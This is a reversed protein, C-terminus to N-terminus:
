KVERIEEPSVDTTETERALYEQEEDTSDVEYLAKESKEEFECHTDALRNGNKRDIIAVVLLLIISFIAIGELFLESYYYGFKIRKSNDELISMVVLVIVTIANMCATAIGFGIDALEEGLVLCLCSWTTTEFVADAAGLLILPLIVIYGDHTETKLYAFLLHGVITVACSVVLWQLRKGTKDTLIGILPAVVILQMYFLLGLRGAAINNFGFRKHIQDNMNTTFAKFGPLSFVYFLLLGWFLPSSVGKVGKVFQTKFDKVLHGVGGSAQKEKQKESNGLAFGCLLSLVCLFAGFLCPAWLKGTYQYISPTVLGNIVNALYTISNNWGLVFTLERKSFSQVALALQAVYLSEGGLAYIVRGIIMSTYDKWIVGLCFVVHGQLVLSAFIIISSRVGFVKILCGGILPLIINPISYTSYLLDFKLYDLSLPPSQFQTQLAQPVDYVFSGGLTLTGMLILLKWYQFKSTLDIKTAEKSPTHAQVAM